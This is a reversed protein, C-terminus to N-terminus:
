SSLSITFYKQKLLWNSELTGDLRVKLTELSLADVVEKPFRHCHKVVRMTFMQRRDLRFRGLKLKFGTGRTMPGELLDTGMLSFMYM